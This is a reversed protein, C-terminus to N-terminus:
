VGDEMMIIVADIVRIRTRNLLYLEGVHDTFAKVFGEETYKKLYNLQDDSMHSIGATFYKYSCWWYNHTVGMM